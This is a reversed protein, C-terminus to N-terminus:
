RTTRAVVLVAADPSRDADVQLRGRLEALSRRIWTKITSPPAGYHAGLADRSQEHLYARKILDAREPPLVSLAVLAHGVEVARDSQEFPDTEPSALTQVLDHLPVMGSRRRRRRDIAANRFITMMWTIPSSRGLDYQSASRWIKLWAEQLVDDVDATEGLAEVVTARMRAATAAHLEAFARQDGNTVRRLFGALRLLEPRLQGSRVTAKRKRAVRERV